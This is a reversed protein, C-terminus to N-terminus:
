RDLVTAITLGHLSESGGPCRANSSTGTPLARLQHLEESLQDLLGLGTEGASAAVLVCAVLLTHVVVHKTLAKAIARPRGYSIVAALTLVSAVIRDSRSSELAGLYKRAGIPDEAILTYEAPSM